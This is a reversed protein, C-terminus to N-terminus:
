FEDQVKEKGRGEVLFGSSRAELITKMGAAVKRSWTVTPSRPCTVGRNPGQTEERPGCQLWIAKLFSDKFNKLMPFFKLM